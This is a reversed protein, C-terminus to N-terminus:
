IKKQHIKIIRNYQSLGVTNLAGKAYHALDMGEKALLDKKEHTQFLSAPEFLEFGNELCYKKIIKCLRNRSTIKRGNKGEANIHNVFLIPKKVYEYIQDMYSFIDEESMLKPRLSSIIQRHSKSLSDPYPSKPAIISSQDNNFANNINAILEIGFKGHPTCLQRNVENYQLPQNDYFISKLSSIEIVIIESEDFNFDDIPEIATGSRTDVQLDMINPSYKSQRNLVKLRLFIEPLSHVYTQMGGNNLKILGKKEVQRLTDHVRCTGIVTVTPKHLTNVHGLRKEKYLFCM